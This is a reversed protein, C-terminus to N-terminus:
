RTSEFLFWARRESEDIWNELLSTTAFDGARDTVEHAARMSEVLSMNDRHLERLMEQPDVYNEDNDHIRQLRAIEGISHVTVGGVKRVREAIDDTMDFIQESQEDLLLHYDRFHPGSMHWHFNKTKVYLAFVDALLANMVSSINRVKESQLGDPNNIQVSKSENSRTSDTHSRNPM